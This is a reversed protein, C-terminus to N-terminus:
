IKKNEQVIKAVPLTSPTTKDQGSIDYTVYINQIIVPELNNRQAVPPSEKEGRCASIVSITCGTSFGTLGGVWVPFCQSFGGATLGAFTGLMCCVFPLPPPSSYM